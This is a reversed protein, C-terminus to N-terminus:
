QLTRQEMCSGDADAVHWHPCRGHRPPSMAASIAYRRLPKSSPDFVLAVVPAVAAGPGAADERAVRVERGAADERAEEAM